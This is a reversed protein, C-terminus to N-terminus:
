EDHREIPPGRQPLETTHNEVYVGLKIGPYQPVSNFKSFFGVIQYTFLVPDVECFPDTNKRGFISTEQALLVSRESDHRGAAHM